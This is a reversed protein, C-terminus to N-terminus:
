EVFELAETYLRNLNLKLKDKSLPTECQDIFKKMLTPTDELKMEEEVEVGHFAIDAESIKLDAPAQSIIQTIFKEFKYPDTKNVVIVKVYAGVLNTPDLPETNLDDYECKRFLVSPNRVFTVKHSSTDFVHFGKPDNYDAWTQEFPTGVYLVNKRKSKTHYHGSFVMDFNSYADISLGGHAPVGRQFEFGDFEFHGVCFISSTVKLNEEVLSQNDECIWPVVFFSIGEIDVDQPSSIIKINDYSSLFLSPTNISLSNKYSADHNGVLTILGFGWDSLKDFFRTKWQHLIIHNSFKRRDFLDGTQLITKIGNTKMYPFLVEEFFNLQYESVILSDGRAGIHVDGM